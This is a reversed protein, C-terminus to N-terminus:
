EAHFLEVRFKGNEKNIGYSIETLTEGCFAITAAWQEVNFKL